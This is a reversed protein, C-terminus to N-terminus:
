AVNEAKSGTAISNTVDIVLQPNIRSLHVWVPTRSVRKRTMEAQWSPELRCEDYSICGVLATGGACVPIECCAGGAGCGEKREPSPM